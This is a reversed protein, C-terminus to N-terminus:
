PCRPYRVGSRRARPNETAASSSDVGSVTRSPPPLVSTRRDVPVIGAGDTGAPFQRLRSSEVRLEVVVVHGFADAEGVQARPGKLQPQDDVAVAQSGLLSGAEDIGRISNAM